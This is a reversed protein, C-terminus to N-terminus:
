QLFHKSRNTKQKSLFSKLLPKKKRKIRPREPCSKVKSLLGTTMLYADLMSLYTKYSKSTIPMGTALNDITSSLASRLAIAARQKERVLTMWHCGRIVNRAAPLYGPMVIRIVLLSPPVQMQSCIDLSTKM